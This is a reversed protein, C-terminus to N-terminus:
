NMIRFTLISLNVCADMDIWDIYCGAADIYDIKSADGYIRVIGEKSVRCGIYTAEIAQTEPNFVAVGVEHEETGFGMDIDLFTNETAGLTIGFHNADGNLEYINTKFTIIPTEEESAYAAQSVGMCCVATIVSAAITRFHHNM